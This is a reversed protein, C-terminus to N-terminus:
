IRPVAPGQPWGHFRTQAKQLARTVCWPPDSKGAESCFAGQNGLAFRVSLFLIM